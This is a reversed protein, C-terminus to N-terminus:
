NERKVADLMSQHYTAPDEDSLVGLRRAHAFFGPRPLHPTLRSVVLAARLPRGKEVDESMVDELISSLRAIQKPGSLGLRQAMERYTITRGVKALEDLLHRAKQSDENVSM